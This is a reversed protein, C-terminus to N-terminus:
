LEKAIGHAWTRDVLVLLLLKLLKAILQLVVLCFKEGDLDVWHRVQM